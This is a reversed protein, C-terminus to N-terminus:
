PQGVRARHRRTALILLVGALLVGAGALVPTWLNTGTRPLPGVTGGASARDGFGTATLVLDASGSVASRALLSATVLVWRQQNARMASITIPHAVVRAAPGYALVQEAQGSPCAGQVWRMACVAVTLQLGDPDVALPGLASLAISVTGPQRTHASVGVQWPVPEDPALNTMRDRDGISILTLYQSRIVDETTDARAQGPTALVAATVGPLVAVLIFMRRLISDDPAATRSPPTDVGSGAGAHDPGSPGSGRRRSAGRGRTQPEAGRPWFAWTVIGATGITIASMAYVNSVTRVAYGLRPVSWEVLRVTDVAYPAADNAENADGRLTLLRSTGGGNAVEVVRHTIPPLPTRDVTVVDGVSVESAPIQRVVALSGAPITPSMSGTKFLILTIDFFFALPVLVVCVTGGVALVTLVLDGVRGLHSQRRRARGVM